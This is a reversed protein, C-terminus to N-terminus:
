RRYKSKRKMHEVKLKINPAEVGATRITGRNLNTHYSKEPELKTKFYFNQKDANRDRYSYNRHATASVNPNQRLKIYEEPSTYSKLRTQYGSESGPNVITLHSDIQKDLEMEDLKTEGDITHLASYGSDAVVSPAKRQLKYENVPREGDVTYPNVYGANGSVNPNLNTELITHNTDTQDTHAMNYNLKYGSSASTQIKDVESMKLEKPADVKVQTECGASASYLPMTTELDPLVSNDEPIDMPAYFTSRWSNSAIRDTLHKNIDSVTQNQVAFATTGHGDHATGPNIRPQIAHVKTPLRNLPGHHEYSNELPPRFADIKEQYSTHGYRDRGHDRSQALVAHEYLQTHSETDLVTKGEDVVWYKKSWKFEPPAKKIDAYVPQELMNLPKKLGQGPIYGNM